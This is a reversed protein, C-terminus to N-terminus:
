SHPLTQCPVSWEKKMELSKEKVPHTTIGPAISIIVNKETVSHRIDALVPNFYQPKVALVIYKAQGSLQMNTETHAVGLDKTIEKCRDLNVDTFIIEEKSYVALLGKLIAYGMNGIGIIGIKAM